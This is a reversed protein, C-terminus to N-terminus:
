DKNKKDQKSQDVPELTGLYDEISAFQKEWFRRYHAIWEDCEKLTEVKLHCRRVRGEKDQVLLGAGQLVKLHKSIAPLSVSFPKALDTVRMSGESLRALIARRTSDALAFFVQDLREVRNKVPQAKPAKKASV